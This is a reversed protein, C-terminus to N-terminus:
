HAQLQAETMTLKISLVEAERTISMHQFNEFQQAGATVAKDRPVVAAFGQALHLTGSVLSAAEEDRMVAVLEVPYGDAAHEIACGIGRVADLQQVIGGIAGLGVFDLPVFSLQLGAHAMDQLQQPAAVVVSIPANGVSFHAALKEYAPQTTLNEGDSGKIINLVAARTGAILLDDRLGCYGAGDPSVYLAGDAQTQEHWGHKKLQEILSDTDYKGRLIIATSGTQTARGDSFIVVEEVDGSAVGLEGFMREIGSQKGLRLLADDEKVRQWDFSAAVVSSAPVFEFLQGARSSSGRCSALLTLGIFAVLLRARWRLCVYRRVAFAALRNDALVQQSTEPM